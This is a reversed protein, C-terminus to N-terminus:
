QQYSIGVPNPGIKCGTGPEIHNRKLLYAAPVPRYGPLGQMAPLCFFEASRESEVPAIQKRTPVLVPAEVIVAFLWGSGGDSGMYHHKSIFERARAREEGLVRRISYGDM